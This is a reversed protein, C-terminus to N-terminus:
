RLGIDKNPSTRVLDSMAEEFRSSCRNQHLRRFRFYLWLLYGEHRVLSVGTCKATSILRGRISISLKRELTGM